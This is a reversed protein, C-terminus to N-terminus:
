RCPATEIEARVAVNAQWFDLFPGLTDGVTAQKENAMRGAEENARGQEDDTYGEGCYDCHWGRWAYAAGAKTARPETLERAYGFNCIACPEARAATM